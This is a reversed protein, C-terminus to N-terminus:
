EKEGQRGRDRRRREKNDRGKPCHDWHVSGVWHTERASEQMTAPELPVKKGSDTEGWFVPGECQRCQGSASTMADKPVYGVRRIVQAVRRANAHERALVIQSAKVWWLVQGGRLAVGPVGFHARMSEAEPSAAALVLERLAEPRRGLVTAGGGSCRDPSRSGMETQCSPWLTCSGSFPFHMHHAPTFAREWLPGQCEDIDRECEPCHTVLAEPEVYKIEAVPEHPAM